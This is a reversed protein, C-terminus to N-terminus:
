RRRHGGDLGVLILATIVGVAVVANAAVRAQVEVALHRIEHRLVQLSFWGYM